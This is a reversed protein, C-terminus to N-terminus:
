RAPFYPMTMQRQAAAAARKAGRNRLRIRLLLAVGLFVLVAGVILGPGLLSPIGNSSAAAKAGPDDDAPAAAAPPASGDDAAGAPAIPSPSAVAKESEAPSPTPTVPTEEDRADKERVIRSNGSASQLVRGVADLAQAEFRVKGAKDGTFSVNYQAQVTRGACLSRPDFLVDTIRATDGETRVRLPSGGPEEVRQIRAQDVKAGDVRVVLSWRVRQCRQGADASVVATIKKPNGGATFTDPVGTLKLTIGPVAASAAAPLLLTAAVIALLASVVAAARHRVTNM